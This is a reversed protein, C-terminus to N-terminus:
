EAHFVYCCHAHQKSNHCPSRRLSVKKPFRRPKLSHSQSIFLRNCLEELYIQAVPLLKSRIRFRVLIKMNRVAICVMTQLVLLVLRVNLLRLRRQISIKKLIFIKFILLLSFSFKFIFYDSIYRNCLELSLTLVSIHIILEIVYFHIPYSFYYLNHHHHHHYFHLHHHHSIKFVPILFSFTEVIIKSNSKQQLYLFDHRHKQFRNEM